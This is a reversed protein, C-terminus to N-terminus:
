SLSSMSTISLSYLCIQSDNTYSYIINLAMFSSLIATPTLISLFSFLDLSHIKPIGIQWPQPSLLFGTFFIIILLWLHQIFIPFVLDQFCPYTFILLLSGLLSANWLGEEGALKHRHGLNLRRELTQSRFMNRCFAMRGNKCRGAQRIHFLITQASPLPKAKNVLYFQPSFHAFCFFFLCTSVAKIKKKRLDELGLELRTASCHFDGFSLLNCESWLGGVEGEKDLPIEVM